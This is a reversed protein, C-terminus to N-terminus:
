YSMVIACLEPYTLDFSRMLTEEDVGAMYARMLEECMAIEKDVFGTYM